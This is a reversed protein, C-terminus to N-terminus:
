SAPGDLKYKAANQMAFRIGYAWHYLKSDVVNGEKSLELLRDLLKSMPVIETEIWESDQLDQKGLEEGEAMEAEVVVLQMNATTMGPDSCITPSVEVIRGVLGAEEKLERLAAEEITEGPDILGAPLEICMAGVPPRYQHLILVAAPTNPRLIIPAIAVADVGTSGRTKRSAVEWVRSVGAQDTWDIKDLKIWKADQSDLPSYKDIRAQSGM